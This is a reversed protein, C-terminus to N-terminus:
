YLPQLSRRGLHTTRCAGRLQLSLGIPIVCAACAHEYDPPVDLISRMQLSLAVSNEVTWGNPQGDMWPLFGAETEDELSCFTGEHGADSLTTWTYTCKGPASREFLAVSDDLMTINVLPFVQGNGLLECTRLAKEQNINESIVIPAFPSTHENCVSWLSERSTVGEGVEQWQVEAWDLLDGTAGCPDRTLHAEKGHLDWSFVRLLGVSGYFQQLEEPGWTEVWSGLVLRDQLTRPKKELFEERFDIKTGVQEGNVFTVGTRNEADISVCIHYWVKLMPQNIDGVLYNLGSDGCVMWLQVAGSRGQKWFAWSLWPRKEDDFMHFSGRDHFMGQKHATCLIFSDPLDKAPRSSLRIYSATPSDPSSNFNYVKVSLALGTLLILVALLVRM